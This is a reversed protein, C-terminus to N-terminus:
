ENVDEATEFEAIESEITDFDNDAEFMDRYQVYTVFGQSDEAVIWSHRKGNILAYWTTEVDGCERDYGGDLTVNHLVEAVLQSANGEFKGPHRNITYM